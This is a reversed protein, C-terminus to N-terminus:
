VDPDDGTNNSDTEAFSEPFIILDALAELQGQVLTITAISANTHAESVMGDNTYRKLEMFGSIMPGLERDAGTFMGLIDSQVERAKTEGLLPTFIASFASLYERMAGVSHGLKPNESRVEVEIKSLCEAMKKLLVAANKRDKEDAVNGQEFYERLQLAVQVFILGYESMTKLYSLSVM